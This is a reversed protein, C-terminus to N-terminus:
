WPFVWSWSAIAIADMSDAVLEIVLLPCTVMATAQTELQHAIVEFVGPRAAPEVEGIGQVV